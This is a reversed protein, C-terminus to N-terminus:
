PAPKLKHPKERTRLPVCLSEPEQILGGDRPPLGQSHTYNQSQDASKEAALGAEANVQLIKRKNLWAFFQDFHNSCLKNGPTQFM